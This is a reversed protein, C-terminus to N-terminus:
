FIVYPAHVAQLRNAQARYSEAMAPNPGLPGVGSAYCEALRECAMISLHDASKRYWRLAECLSKPVGQGLRYADGLALEALPYNQEAAERFYRVAAEESGGDVARSRLLMGLAYKARPVGAAAAAAYLDRVRRFDDTTSASSRELFAGLYLMAEPHQQAAAREFHGKATTGDKQLRLALLGCYYQANADGAAAPGSFWKLAEEYNPTPAGTAGYGHYAWEGLSCQSPRYGKQAAQLFAARAATYDTKGALGAFHIQGLAHWAALSGKRAAKQLQRQAQRYQARTEAQKMQRLGLLYSAVVHGQGELAQAWRLIAPWEEDRTELKLDSEALMEVVKVRAQVLGNTGAAHFWHLAERLDTPLGTPPHQGAYRLGLLWQAPVFGQGAAERLLVDSSDWREQAEPGANPTTV